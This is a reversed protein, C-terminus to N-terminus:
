GFFLLEQGRIPESVCLCVCVYVRLTMRNCRTVKIGTLGGFGLDGGLCVADLGGM